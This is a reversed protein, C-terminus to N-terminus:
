ELKESAFDLYLRIIIEFFCKENSPNIFEEPFFQMGGFKKAKVYSVYTFIREGRSSEVREFDM